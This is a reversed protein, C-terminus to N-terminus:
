ACNAAKIMALFADYEPGSPPREPHRGDRWENLDGEFRSVVQKLNKKVELPAKDVALPEMREM